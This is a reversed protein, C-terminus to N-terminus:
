KKNGTKAKMDAKIIFRQLSSAMKFGNERIRGFPGMTQSFDASHNGKSLHPRTM